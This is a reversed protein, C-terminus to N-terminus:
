RLEAPRASAPRTCLPAFGTDTEATPVQPKASGAGSMAATIAAVALSAHDLSGYVNWVDDNIGFPSSTFAPNLANPARGRRCASGLVSQPVQPGLVQPGILDINDPKDWPM